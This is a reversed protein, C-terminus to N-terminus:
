SVLTSISLFDLPFPCTPSPSCLRSLLGLHLLFQFCSVTSQAVHGDQTVRDLSLQTSLKTNEVMQGTGRDPKQRCAVVCLWHLSTAPQLPSGPTIFLRSRILTATASTSIGLQLAFLTAAEQIHWLAFMIRLSVWLVASIFCSPNSSRLPKRAAWRRHRKDQQAFFSLCIKQSCRHYLTGLLAERHSLIKKSSHSLSHVALPSVM